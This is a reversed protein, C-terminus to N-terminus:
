ALEKTRVTVRESGSADLPITLADVIGVLNVGADSDVVSVRDGVDLHPLPVMELEFQVGVISNLLLGAVVSLQAADTVLPTSIEEPNKGYTKVSGGEDYASIAWTQTTTDTLYRENRLPVLLGTGEATVIVGNKAFGAQMSRSISLLVGDSGANLRYEVAGDPDQWQTSTVRNDYSMYLAQGAAQMLSQADAWPTSNGDTGFTAWPTTYTTSQLNFSPNVAPTSVAATALLSSVATDITISGAQNYPNPWRVALLASLDEAEVRVTTGSEGTEISVSNPTFTGLPVLSYTDGRSIGRCIVILNGAFPGLPYLISNTPLLSGDYDVLELSATRRISRRADVTVSGGTPQLQKIYTGNADTLYCYIVSEHSARWASEVASTFSRSSDIDSLTAM